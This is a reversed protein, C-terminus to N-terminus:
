LKQLIEVLWEICLGMATSEYGQQSKIYKKCFGEVKCGGASGQWEGSELYNELEEFIKFYYTTTALHTYIKGKFGLIHYTVIDIKNGSQLLLLKKAEERNKPKRILTKGDTIITDACLLPTKDGFCKLCEKFKGETAKKVFELPIETKISDEDFECSNQIFPINAKKLLTARVKSNSCLTLMKSKKM